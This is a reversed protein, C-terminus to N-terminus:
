RLFIIKETKQFNATEGAHDVVFRVFYVGQPVKRGKNDTGYWSLLTPRQPDLTCCPLEKVLRGSIDYIRIKIEGHDTTQFIINTMHRTPNPKITIYPELINLYTSHEKIGSPAIGFYRMISDILVQKTSPLITDVLGGLEFSTGVTRHNAAVGCNYNNHTNKFIDSSWSTSNICDIAITEGQYRFLMNRTLTGSIGYVGPFFGITNNIPTIGFLPCFNYGHNAQPDACWVDGGELYVKGGLTELYTEIEQAARSTDIIVFNNPYIGCCIFLSKYISLFGDPFTSSYDGYFNLSDLDVKIIPGSTQNLDPDWVLFDKQGVYLILNFTDICVGSTIELKVNVSHGVPTQPNTTIIFPNSLNTATGGPVITGFSSISDLIVFPSDDCSIKGIVNEAKYSGNNELRIIIKNTDGPATYKVYGPFYYDNLLIIPAHVIFGLNSTWTTNNTDSIVLQFSIEHFDPCNNEIIVNYGDNSTYASDLSPIDGFYKITDNLTFYPDAQANRMIASVNCATTDGWNRLWIPVEIDEGPNALYDGNGGATDSITFSHLLVYPGGSNYVTIGKCYTKINRGTVTFFVSDGPIHLTDVFVINAPLNTQTYYYFTSDNKASVCVNISELPLAEYQINVFITCVGTYLETNHTVQLERPITTWVMMEPDGLCTWSNYELTNGFIGYYKLRGAEAAKGLTSLSDCFISYLTGRTLASRFHAAGMLATTTGFFGVTGKQEEPTGANLWEYGIEEVTACTASIVVPLKFGNNMSEPFIDYFPFDWQGYGIGRYLIYSRGNNIADVVDDSSDGFSEAFSDIHVFGTNNMLAHAYRADAWYVSDDYPPYNDENVITVGKKLWLCDDFCPDKEYNIIKAVVTKVDITDYPWLRGPIIENRFDGTVDTYYNDSHSITGYYNFAPFPIQYKNGVLLLYEPKIQWTNYANVIYNKILEQSAGIESLKVIKSKMGKQMKWQALPQIADYYDDYTIILYRAGTQAFCPPSLFLIFVSIKMFHM